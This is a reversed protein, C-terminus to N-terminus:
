APRAAQLGLVTGRRMDVRRLLVLGIVFFSGTALIALRHNNNTLYTALGHPTFQGQQQALVLMQKGHSFPKYVLYYPRM